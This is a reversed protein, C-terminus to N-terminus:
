SVMPNAKDPDIKLQQIAQSVKEAPIKGQQSLQYLAAVAISEADIEFFRRLRSRNDSRGFGDTGLSLFRGPLWPAIQVPVAAALGPCM